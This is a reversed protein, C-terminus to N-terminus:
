ATSVNLYVGNSNGTIADYMWQTPCNSISSITGLIKVIYRRYLRALFSLFLSFEIQIDAFTQFVLYRTYHRPTTAMRRSRNQVEKENKKHDQQRGVHVYKKKKKERNEKEGAREREKDRESM